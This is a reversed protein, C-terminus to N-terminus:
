PGPMQYCLPLLCCCFLGSKGSLSLGTCSYPRGERDQCIEVLDAKFGSSSNRRRAVSRRNGTSRAAARARRARVFATKAGPSIANVVERPTNAARVLRQWSSSEFGALGTEAVTPVDPLAASRKAGAVALARLTGAAVHPLTTAMPAIAV